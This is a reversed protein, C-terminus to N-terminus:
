HILKYIFEKLLDGEKDFPSVDVGKSKMEYERIIGINAILKSMPMRQALIAYDNSYYAPIKLVAAINSASKDELQAVILVKTFYSFINAFIVQLPNEKPNAVMYNVCKNVKDYDLRGIAKQLEFVNYDKSIGIHASVDEVTINNRQRLNLVLKSIENSIKMLNNGLYDLIMASAQHEITFGLSKVHSDIWSVVKEEKLKQSDFVVGVKGIKAALAQPFDKANNVIVLVTSATPALLYKELKALERKDMTQSEKLIVLRHSAMMPYQKASSIISDISADKGYFVSMNFDKEFEELVGDEFEKSLVELYYSEEGKLLYIPKLSKSVIDKKVSEFTAAM